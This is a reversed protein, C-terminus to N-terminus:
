KSRLQNLQRLAEVAARETEVERALAAALEADAQARALAWGAEVNRGDAMLRRAQDMQDQALKLHLQAPPVQNANYDQAERIAASTTEVRSTPPASSGCAAGMSAAVIVALSTKWRTM